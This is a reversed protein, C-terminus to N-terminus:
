GYRRYQVKHFGAQRFRNGALDLVGYGAFTAADTADNAIERRLGAAQQTLRDRIVVHCSITTVTRVVTSNSTTM